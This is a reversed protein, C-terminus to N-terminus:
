PLVLQCVCLLRPGVSPPSYYLAMACHGMDSRYTRAVADCRHKFRSLQWQCRPIDENVPVPCQSDFLLFKAYQNSQSIQSLCGVTFRCLNMSCRSKKAGQTPRRRLNGPLSCIPRTPSNGSIDVEGTDVKSDAVYSAELEETSVNPNKGKFFGGTGEVLFTPADDSERVVIYVGPFDPIIATNGFLKSVTMFGTFGENKYNEIEKTM